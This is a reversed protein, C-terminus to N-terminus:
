KNSKAKFTAPGEKGATKHYVGTLKDREYKTFGAREVNKTDLRAKSTRPSYRSAISPALYVRRVPVGLEPHFTLASANMPQIIDFTEGDSGDSNIVQYTYTPM